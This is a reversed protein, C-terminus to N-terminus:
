RKAYTTNTTVTLYKNFQQSYTEMVLTLICGESAPNLRCRSKELCYINAFYEFRRTVSVPRSRVKGLPIFRNGTGVEYMGLRNALGLAIGKYKNANRLM